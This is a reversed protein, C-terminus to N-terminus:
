MFLLIKMIVTKKCTLYLKLFFRTFCYGRLLYFEGVKMQISASLQKRIHGRFKFAGQIVHEILLLRYELSRLFEIM